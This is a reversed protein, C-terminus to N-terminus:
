EPYEKIARYFENPISYTYTGNEPDDYPAYIQVVPSTRRGGSAKEEFSLMEMMTLNASNVHTMYSWAFIDLPFVSVCMLVALFITVLRKM